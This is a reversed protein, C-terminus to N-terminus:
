EEEGERPEGTEECFEEDSSPYVDFTVFSRDDWTIRESPTGMRLQGVAHELADALSRNTKGYATLLLKKM